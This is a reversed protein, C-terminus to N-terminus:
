HQTNYENRSQALRGLTSTQRVPVLVPVVVADRRRHHQHRNQQKQM